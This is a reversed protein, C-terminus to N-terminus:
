DIDEAKNDECRAQGAMAYQLQLLKTDVYLVLADVAMAVFGQSGPARFSGLTGVSSESM